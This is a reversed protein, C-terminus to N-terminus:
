PALVVVAEAFTAKDIGAGADELSDWLPYQADSDGNLLLTLFPLCHRQTIVTHLWHTAAAVKCADLNRYLSWKRKSIGTLEGKRLSGLLAAWKKGQPRHAHSVYKIPKGSEYVRVNRGYRLM